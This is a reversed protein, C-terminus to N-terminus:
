FSLIITVDLNANVYVFLCIFTLAFIGVVNVFVLFTQHCVYIYMSTYIISAIDFTSQYITPYQFFFISYQDANFRGYLLTAYTILLYSNCLFLYTLLYPTYTCCVSEYPPIKKTRYMVLIYLM